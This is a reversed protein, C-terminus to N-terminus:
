NKQLKIHINPFSNPYKLNWTIYFCVASLSQISDSVHMVIAHIQKRTDTKNDPPCTHGTVLPIGTAEPNAATM